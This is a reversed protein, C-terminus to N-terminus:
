QYWSVQRICVLDKSVVLTIEKYEFVELGEMLSYWFLIKWIKKNMKKNM